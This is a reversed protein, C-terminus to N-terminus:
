INITRGEKAANSFNDIISQIYMAHTFDRYPKAGTKICDIFERLIPGHSGGKEMDIYHQPIQVPRMNPAPKDYGPVPKGKIMMGLTKPPYKSSHSVAGNEGIIEFDSGAFNMRSTTFVILAGSETVGSFSASDDNTVSAKAEKHKSGATDNPDILWREGVHIATQACFSKFKGCQDKLIYDTLDIMHAGFDALSGTGSTNETMRWELFVKDPSAIRGGGGSHRVLNIKGLAGSDVIEKMYRHWPRERYNLAIMATLGPNARSADLAKQGDACDVAFPKEVIVHRGAELAEVAMQAHLYNPTCISVADTMDLLQRYSECSIGSTIGHKEKFMDVRGPVSDYFAVIEANECSKYGVYHDNAIGINFGTGVIGVKIKGM